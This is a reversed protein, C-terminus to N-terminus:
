KPRGAGIAAQLEAKLKEPLEDWRAGLIAGEMAYVMNMTVNFGREKMLWYAHISGLRVLESRTYIGIANLWRRSTPEFSTLDSLESHRM